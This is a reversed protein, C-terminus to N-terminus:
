IKAKKTIGIGSSIITIEDLVKKIAINSGRKFVENLRDKFLERELKNFYNKLFKSKYLLASLYLGNETFNASELFEARIKKVLATVAEQKPAYRTRKGLELTEVCNYNVLSLGVASLFENIREGFIFVSDAEINKPRMTLVHDPIFDKQKAKKYSLIRRYIPKLHPLKDDWQKLLTIKGKKSREFYGNEKLELMSSAVLCILADIKKFFPLNGKKNIVCLYLEQTCSLDKM